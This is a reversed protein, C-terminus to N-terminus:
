NVYLGLRGPVGRLELQSLPQLQLALSVPVTTCEPEVLVLLLGKVENDEDTGSGPGCKPIVSCGCAKLRAFM